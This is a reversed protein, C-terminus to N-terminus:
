EPEKAAPVFFGADAPQTPTTDRYEPPLQSRRRESEYASRCHDVQWFFLRDILPQLWSYPRAARLRWCRASITEDSYGGLIANALQDLAIAVELRRSV